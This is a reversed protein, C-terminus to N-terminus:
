KVHVPKKASAQSATNKKNQGHQSPPKKTAEVMSYFFSLKKDTARKADAVSEFQAAKM